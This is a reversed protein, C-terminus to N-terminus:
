SSILVKVSVKETVIASAFPVGGVVGVEWKGDGVGWVGVELEKNKM